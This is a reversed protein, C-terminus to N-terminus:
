DPKIILSKYTRNTLKSEIWAPFNFIRLLPKEYKDAKVKSLEKQFKEWLKEKSLRDAPLPYKKLFKFLVKETMYQQKENNLNRKMSIIESDILDYNGLEVQLILNILRVSKYLPFNSLIKGASLIKKMQKRAEDLNATSLNFITINLLIQLQMDISLLSVKKFLIDEYHNQLIFVSNIDGDSFLRAYEYLYIHAHVNLEFESSYGKGIFNRLKNIFFPMESYLEASLLSDLIGSIANFYYIPPNLIMHKNEEFLSMLRQYYRLASNYNGTNLFYASQFLLHLKDSEFGKYSSNAIINLENLILDNYREKQKESRVHGEHIFRLKMIDYLQTHLNVSRMYKMIENIKMQKNVLKKEDIGRFNITHLYKLETRRILLLLSDYEYKTAISKAKNLETFAENTMEREFMIAAKSIHNFVQTQMDQKERLLVLCDLITKYLHKVAMEYSKGDHSQRFIEYIESESANSEMMDFLSMYVKDGGQIKSYLKFYRKEAKSLSKILIFLSISKNM